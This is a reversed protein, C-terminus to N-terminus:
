QQQQLETTAQLTIMLATAAHIRSGSGFVVM